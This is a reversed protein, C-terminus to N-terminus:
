WKSKKFVSLNMKHKLLPKYNKVSENLLAENLLKETLEDKDVAVITGYSANLSGEPFLVYNEPRMGGYDIYPSGAGMVYHYSTSESLGIVAKSAIGIITPHLHTEYIKNYKTRKIAKQIIDTTLTPHSRVLITPNDGIEILSEVVECFKEIFWSDDRGGWRGWYKNVFIGYIIHNKPDDIPVETILHNLYYKHTYNIYEPYLHTYGIINFNSLGMMAFYNLSDVSNILASDGVDIKKRFQNERLRVVRETRPLGYEDFHRRMEELYHNNMPQYTLTKGRMSVILSICKSMIHNINKWQFYIVYDQRLIKFLAPFLKLSLFFKRVLSGKKGPSKLFKAEGVKEIMEFLFKNRKLIEFQEIEFYIVQLFISPNDKRLQLVIPLLVDLHGIRQPNIVLIYM